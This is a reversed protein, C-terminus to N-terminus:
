KTGTVSIKIKNKSPKAWALYDSLNFFFISQHFYSYRPIVGSTFNSIPYRKKWRAINRVMLVGTEKGRGRM